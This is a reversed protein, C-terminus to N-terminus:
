CSMSADASKSADSTCGDATRNGDQTALEGTAQSGGSASQSVTGVNVHPKNREFTAKAAMADGAFVNLVFVAVFASAVVKALPTLIAM